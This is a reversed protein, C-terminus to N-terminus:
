GAASLALRHRRRAPQSRVPGPRPGIRGGAAPRDGARDLLDAAGRRRRRVDQVLAAAPDGKGAEVDLLVGELRTRLRTLQCRLDHAFADGAHHLGAISRELRELMDNLGAALKDFADGSERLQVRARLDGGCVANLQSFSRSANRSVLVGGALCLVLAGAGCLGSIQRLVHAEAGSVDAGVFLVEGGTLKRREGRVLRRRVAGGPTSTSCCNSCATTPAAQEIM